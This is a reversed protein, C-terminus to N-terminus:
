LYRIVQECRAVERVESATTARHVTPHRPVYLKGADVVAVESSSTM